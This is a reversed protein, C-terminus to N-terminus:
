ESAAAPIRSSHGSAPAVDGARRRRQMAPHISPHIPLHCRAHGHAHARSIGDTQGDRAGARSPTWSDARARARATRLRLRLRLHARARRSSSSNTPSRRTPGAGDGDGSASRRRLHDRERRRAIDPATRGRASASKSVAAHRAIAVLARPSLATAAQVAGDGATARPRVGAPAGSADTAPDEFASACRTLSRTATSTARMRASSSRTTSASTRTAPARASRACGAWTAHNLPRANSTCGSGKSNLKVTGSSAVLTSSPM